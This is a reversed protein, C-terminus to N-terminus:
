SQPAKRAPSAGAAARMACAIVLGRSCLQSAAMLCLALAAGKLGARPVLWWCAVATVAVVLLSLPIQIRFYRAATVGYGAMAAVYGVAAAIMTWVLVSSHAAYAPGYLMALVPRGAVFAVAVGAVGIAAGLAALKALLIGFAGTRGAAYCQALRPVASEGIAMVATMGAFGLYDLAGFIGLAGEGAFHDVFYRPINVMLVILMLSIGLPLSLWAMAALRRPEWRPRLRASFVRTRLVAAASPLDWGFLVGVRAAAVALIGYFVSGTTVVVAALAVVSVAGKIVL